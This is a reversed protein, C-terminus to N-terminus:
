PRLRFSLRMFQRVRPRFAPRSVHVYASSLVVDVDHARSLTPSTRLAVTKPHHSPLNPTQFTQSICSRGSRRVYFFDPSPARTV